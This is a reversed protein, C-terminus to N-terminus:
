KFQKVDYYLDKKVISGDDMTIVLIVATINTFKKTIDPEITIIFQETEEDEEGEITIDMKEYCNNSCKTYIEAIVTDVDINSTKIILTEGTIM